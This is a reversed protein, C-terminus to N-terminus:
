RLMSQYIDILKPVQEHLRFENSAITKAKEGMERRLEPDDILKALSSAFAEKDYPEILIGNEGRRAIEPMGGLDFAVTPLGAMSAEMIALSIGETRSPQAYIDCATLIEPVQNQIGMWLLYEDLELDHGFQHIYRSYESQGGKGILAVKFKDKKLENRLISIIELFIDIGKIPDHFAVCAIITQNDPIDPFYKKRCENRDYEFPEIGLYFTEAKSLGGESHMMEKIKNSVTLLRNSLVSKLKNAFLHKKPKFEPLCHMTHIIKVGHLKGILSGFYVARSFNTHIIDPSYEKVTKRFQRVFGLVPYTPIVKYSINELNTLQNIYENCDPEKDFIVLMSDSQSSLNKALELTFKELGGFKPAGTGMLQIIRM